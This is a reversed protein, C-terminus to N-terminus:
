QREPLGDKSDLWTTVWHQDNGLANTWFNRFESSTTVWHQDNGLANTWFNRFESTGAKKDNCQRYFDKCARYFADDGMLRRFHDLMMAGKYYRITYGHGENSPPVASIAPADDPLDDVANRRSTLSADFAEEGQIERVALLSFYEAFAENLWDGQDAGFNWWFHGIEHAMGRLLSAGPDGALLGLVRGESTVTM